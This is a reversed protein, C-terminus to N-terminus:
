FDEKIKKLSDYLADIARTLNDYQSKYAALAAWTKPGIIGDALLNHGKQFEIVLPIVSSTINAIPAEIGFPTSSYSMGFYECLGRVVGVATKINHVRDTILAYDAENDEFGVELLVAVANTKTLMTWTNNTKVGRDRMETENIVANHILTALKKGKSSNPHHFTETGRAILQWRAGMANRHCELHVDAGWDNSKKADKTRSEPGEKPSSVDKVQFGNNKLLVIIEDVYLDNLLREKVGNPAEKGPTVMTHGRRISIKKKM